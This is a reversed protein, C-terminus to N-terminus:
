NVGDAHRLITRAIQEEEITTGTTPRSNGDDDREDSARFLTVTSINTNIRSLKGPAVDVVGGVGPRITPLFGNYLQQAVDNALDSTVTRHEEDGVKYSISTSISTMPEDEDVIQTPTVIFIKQTTTVPMSVSTTDLETSTNTPPVSPISRNFNEPVEGLSNFDDQVRPKTRKPMWKLIAKETTSKPQLFSGRNRVRKIQELTLTSQLTNQTSAVESFTETTTPKKKRSSDPNRQKQRIKQPPKPRDVLEASTQSAIVTSDVYPVNLDENQTPPPLQANISDPYAAQRPDNGGSTFDTGDSGSPSSLQDYKSGNHEPELQLKGTPIEYGGTGTTLVTAKSPTIPVGQNNLPIVDLTGPTHILQGHNTVHDVNIPRHHQIADAYGPNQHPLLHPELHQRLISIQQHYIPDPESFQNNDLQYNGHFPQTPSAPHLLIPQNPRPHVHTAPYMHFPAYFKGAATTLPIEQQNYYGSNSQQVPLPSPIQLHDSTAFRTPLSAPHHENQYVQYQEPKTYGTFQQNDHYSHPSGSGSPFKILAPHPRQHLSQPHTHSILPKQLESGYHNTNLDVPNEQLHQLNGLTYSEIVEHGAHKDYLNEKNFGYNNNHNRNSYFHHHLHTATLPTTSIRDLFNASPGTIGEHTPFRIQHGPQLLHESISQYPSPSISNGYPPYSPATPDIDQVGGAYFEGTNLQDHGEYNFHLPLHYNDFNNQALGSIMDFTRKQIQESSPPTGETVLPLGTDVFYFPYDKDRIVFSRPYPHPIRKTERKNNNDTSKIQKIPFVTLKLENAHGRSPNRHRIMEVMWMVTVNKPIEDPLKCNRKDMCSHNDSEILTFKSGNEEMRGRALPIIDGFRTHKGHM